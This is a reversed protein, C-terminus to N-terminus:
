CCTQGVKAVPPLCWRTPRMITIPILNGVSLLTPKDALGLRQRLPQQPQPQFLELDVGNRLVQVKAADVGLAILKDKLPQSVTILGAAHGAAWRIMRQPLPYDAIM